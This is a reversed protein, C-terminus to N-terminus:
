NILDGLFYVAFGLQVLLTLLMVHIITTVASWNRTLRIFWRDRPHSPQMGSFENTAVMGMEKKIEDLAYQNGLQFARDKVFQILFGFFIIFNLVSLVFRIFISSESSFIVNFFIASVTYAAGPILWLKQDYHIGLEMMKEYQGFLIEKKKMRCVERGSNCKM